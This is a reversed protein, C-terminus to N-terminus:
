LASWHKHLWVIYPYCFQKIVWMLIIIVQFIKSLTKWKRIINVMMRRSDFIFTKLKEWFKFICFFILIDNKKFSIIINPIFMSVNKFIFKYNYVHQKKREMMLHNAWIFIKLWFFYWLWLYLFDLNLFTKM